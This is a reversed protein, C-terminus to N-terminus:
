RRTPTAPRPTWWVSSGTRPSVARSGGGGTTGDGDQVPEVDQGAILALLAVTQAAREDLEFDSVGDLLALADCVSADVLGRIRLTHFSPWRTTAAPGYGAYSKRVARRVSRSSTGSSCGGRFPLDDQRWMM